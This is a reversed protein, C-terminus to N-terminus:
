SAARVLGITKSGAALLQLAQYNVSGPTALSAAM